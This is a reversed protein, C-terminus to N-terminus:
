RGSEPRCFPLCCSSRHFPAGAVPQVGGRLAKFVRCRCAVTDALAITRVPSTVEVRMAPAPSRVASRRVALRADLRHMAANLAISRATSVPRLLRRRPAVLQRRCAQLDRHGGGQDGLGVAAPGAQGVHARRRGGRGGHEARACSARRTFRSPAGVLLKLCTGCSCALAMGRHQLQVSASGM